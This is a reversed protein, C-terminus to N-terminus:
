GLGSISEYGLKTHQRTRLITKVRELEEQPLREEPKKADFDVLLQHQCERCNEKKKGGEMRFSVAVQPTAKKVIDAADELGRALLERHSLTSKMLEEDNIIIKVIQEFSKEQAEKSTFTSFYNMAFGKQLNIHLTDNDTSCMPHASPAAPPQPYINTSM